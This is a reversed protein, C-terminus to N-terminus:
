DPRHVMQVAMGPASLLNLAELGESSIKNKMRRDCLRCKNKTYEADRTSNEKHQSRAEADREEWSRVDTIEGIEKCIISATFLEEGLQRICEHRKELISIREEKKARYPVYTIFSLTGERRVVIYCLNSPTLMNDLENLATQFSPGQQLIPSLPQLKSDKVLILPLAFCSKNETFAAFAKRITSPMEQTPRDALCPKGSSQRVL